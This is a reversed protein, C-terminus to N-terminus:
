EVWDAGKYAVVWRGKEKKLEVTAGGEGKIGYLIVCRQNDPSFIFKSISCISVIDNAQLNGRKAYIDPVSDM